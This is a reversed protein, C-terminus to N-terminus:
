GKNTAGVLARHPYAGVDLRLASILVGGYGPVDSGSVPSDYVTFSHAPARQNKLHLELEMNPLGKIGTTASLDYTYTQVVSDDYNACVDVTLNCYGNREGVVTLWTARQYGAVGASHFWPTRITSQFFATGDCGPNTNAGQVNVGSPLCQVHQGSWFGSATALAPGRGDRDVKWPQETSWIGLSYDFVAYVTSDINGGPTSTTNKLLWRCRRRATDINSALVTPAGHGYGGPTKTIGFLQRVEGVESDQLARDLRRLGGTSQYFVGGPFSLVSRPDVCGGSAAVRVTQYQAGTGNDNPGDGSVYYVRTATFVVLKDDMSALATAGDPSDDLRIQLSRNFGPAEGAVLGKSFLITKRDVPDIAWLRGGHAIVCPSGTLTDSPVVGGFTYIVGYANALLAADTTTDIFTVKNVTPDNQIGQQQPFLRILESGNVESRFVALQVPRKRALLRSKNTAGLTALQVVVGSSGAGGVTLTAVNSPASQHLNGRDDYWEFVVQYVYSGTTLVTGAGASDVKIIQPANTYSLEPCSDGDYWGVAAGSMALCSQAGVAQRAIPSPDSLSLSVELVRSGINGVGSLSVGQSSDFALSVDVDVPQWTTPTATYAVPIALEHLIGALQPVIASTGNVVPDLRFLVCSSVPAGPQAAGSVEAAYVNTTAAVLWRNATRVPRSYASVNAITGSGGAVLAGSLTVLRAYSTADVTVTLPLTGQNWTVCTEDVATAVSVWSRGSPLQTSLTAVLVPGWIGALTAIDVQSVYVNGTPQERWAVVIGGSASDAAVSVDQISTAGAGLAITHTTVLVPTATANDWLQVYLSPGGSDYYATVFKEAVAACADFVYSVPTALLALAASVTGAFPDFKQFYVSSSGVSLVIAYQDFGAGPDAVLLRVSPCPTAGSVFSDAVLTAGTTADTASLVIANASAENVGQVCARVRAKQGTSFKTLTKVVPAAQYGYVNSAVSVSHAVEIAEDQRLWLNRSPSWSDVYTGAGDTDVAVLEGEREWLGSAPPQAFVAPTAGFPVIAGVYCANQPLSGYGDRKRLAGAQDFVVNDLALWQDQSLIRRDALQMLGKTPSVELSSFVMAM